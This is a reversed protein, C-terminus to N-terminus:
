DSADTASHGALELLYEGYSNNRMSEGAAQVAAVDIWGAEFAIEEVCAIKANARNQIVRVFESAEVMSDFTGTDFWSFGRRLQSVELQQDQLYSDIVSTIELEGRPSPEVAAAREVVTADFFYLGTVACTSEPHEPKEVVATPLGEDDLNVIGYRQPDRVHYGFM